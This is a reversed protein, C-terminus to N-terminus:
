NTKGAAQTSRGAAGYWLSSHFYQSRANEVFVLWYIKLDDRVPITTRTYCSRPIISVKRWLEEFIAASLKGSTNRMGEAPATVLAPKTCLKVLEVGWASSAKEPNLIDTCRISCLLQLHVQM